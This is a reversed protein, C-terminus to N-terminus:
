FAEGLSLQVSVIPENHRGGTDVLPGGPEVQELVPVGPMDWGSRVRSSRRPLRAAVDARLPGFLTKYRLGLGAAYQFNGPDLTEGRLVEHVGRLEQITFTDHVLEFAVSSRDLDARVRDLAADFIAGHDFALPAGEPPLEEAAFWRVHSM